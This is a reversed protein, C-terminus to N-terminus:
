AAAAKIIMRSRIIPIFNGATLCIEFSHNEYNNLFPTKKIYQRRIPHFGSSTLNGAKSISLYRNFLHQHFKPSLITGCYIGQLHKNWPFSSHIKSDLVALFKVPWINKSPKTHRILKRSIQLCGAINFGSARYSSLKWFRFIFSLPEKKITAANRSTM